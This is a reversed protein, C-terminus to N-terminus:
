SSRAWRTTSCVVSVSSTSTSSVSRHGIKGANISLTNSDVSVIGKTNYTADAVTGGTSTSSGLQKTIIQNNESVIIYLTNSSIVKVIKNIDSSIYTQNLLETDNAVEYSVIGHIETTPLSKHYAM